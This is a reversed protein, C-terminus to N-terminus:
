LKDIPPYCQIFEPETIPAIHVYSPIPDFTIPQLYGAEIAEQVWKYQDMRTAGWDKMQQNRIHRNREKKRKKDYNM